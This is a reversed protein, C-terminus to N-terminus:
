IPIEETDWRWDIVPCFQCYYAAQGFPAGRDDSEDLIFEHKRPPTYDDCSPESM